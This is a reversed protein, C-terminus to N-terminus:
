TVHSKMGSTMQENTWNDRFVHLDRSDQFEVFNSMTVLNRSVIGVTFNTEDNSIQFFKSNKISIVTKGKIWFNPNKKPTECEERRLLIEDRFEVCMRM